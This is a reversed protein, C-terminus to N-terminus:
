VKGALLDDLLGENQAKVIEDSSMGKLDARTLQKKTGTTGGNLEAGGSRSPNPTKGDAPPAPTADVAAKVKAEFDSGSPDLGKISAMFRRSDLLGNGREGALRLVALELTKESLADEREKLSKALQDPDPKRDPNLVAGLKSLIDKLSDREAATGKLDNEMKALRAATDDPGTGPMTTPNSPPPQQPNPAPSPPTPNPPAPPSDAPNAPAPGNPAPNPQPAPATM